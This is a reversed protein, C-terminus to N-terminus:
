EARARRLHFLVSPLPPLPRKGPKGGPKLVRRIEALWAAPEFTLVRGLDSGRLPAGEGAPSVAAALNELRFSPSSSDPEAM